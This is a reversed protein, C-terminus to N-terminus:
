ANTGEKNGLVYVGPGSLALTVRDGPQRTRSEGTPALLVEGAPTDVTYETVPGLYAASTVTGAVGPEGPDAFRVTEPRILVSVQGTPAGPQQHTLKHGAVDLTTGDFNGSLLNAEGIFDAVFPNAPRQYLDEPGGIQEIFGHNMVVIRDSIALAESQDHTVYVATIGLRQQLSRIEGRMRRRLKADLNSLPEDFLLVKPKMVLARALAVRQQQGGSLASPQREGLGALGVMELAENAAGRPDKHRTVRLGYAVNEIVSLHPFLAYSQFVMTVDRNSAPQRTVDEGDILIRGATATELGAIMRLTTTKGCGSPGLLTVLHGPEITLDIGAVAVTNGFRKELKELRVPVARISKALSSVTAVTM